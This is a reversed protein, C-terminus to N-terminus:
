PLFLPRKHCEVDKFDAILLPRDAKSGYVYSEVLVYKTQFQWVREAWIISM